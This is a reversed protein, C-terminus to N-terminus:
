KSVSPTRALRVGLFGHFDDRLAPGCWRREAARCDWANLNWSAGRVVRKSSKADWLDSCWQYVNGHMDYLGLKNPAYSGVKTPRGLSPGKAAAGAPFNGNFNAQLSSLDNTPKDFYFDFSCEEKTTAANRCAYEWEAESPLRYLWGKGKQVENLKRLFEQVDDWSVQEVPFKKLDADGIDTVKDKGAGHRSFHSPNRGMVAQWQEQTVIYAALEFDEKIEVQKTPPESSGGGMWFTGRPVKVFKMATILPDDKDQDGPRPAAGLLPLAALLALILANAILQQRVM